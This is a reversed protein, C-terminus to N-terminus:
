PSPVEELAAAPPILVYGGDVDVGGVVYGDALAPLMVERVQMRWTLAAEPDRSRLAVIDEPLPVRLAGAPPAPYPALSGAAAREARVSGVQWWALLRDSHDGANMEDTMDGYFDPLYEAVEAGLKVLNFRANRRVLPDFTWTIVPVEHELAWARQHLKLASGVHRDRWGARVAAAHSHLHTTWGGSSSPHRGLFAVAAGVAPGAPDTPDLAAAVYGGSHEIARILNTEMVTGGGPLPWTADLVERVRELDDIAAVARVVVGARAGAERARARAARIVTDAVRAGYGDRGDATVAGTLVEVSGGTPPSRTADPCASM